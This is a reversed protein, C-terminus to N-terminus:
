DDDSDIESPEYDSSSDEDSVFELFELKIKKKCARQKVSSNINIDMCEKKDMLRQLISSYFLLKEDINEETIFEMLKDILFDNSDDM